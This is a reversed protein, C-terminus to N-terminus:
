DGWIGALVHGFGWNTAKGIRLRSGVAPPEDDDSHTDMFFVSGAPLLQRMPIPRRILSNWGGVWVPKGICASVLRGPLGEISGNPRPVDDLFIPSLAVILYRPGAQGPDLNDPLPVDRAVAPATSISAMRHEGGLVQTADHIEVAEWLGSVDVTLALTDAPRVHSATYLQGDVVNRSAPEIGIGVKSEQRWLPKKPVVKSPLKGCLVRGMDEATVFADEVPKVGSVTDASAPLRVPGLDTEIEAGPWLLTFVAAGSSTESAEALHLPAPFLPTWTGPETECEIEPPGFSLPSLVDEDAQWDVGDGLRAGPWAAVPFGLHKALAFRLAGVLTPPYPPFVSEAAKTGDDDQNFPFGDRFMLTDNARFRFRQM